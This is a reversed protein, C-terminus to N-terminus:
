EEVIRRYLELDRGLLRDMQKADYSEADIAGSKETRNKWVSKCDGGLKRSLVNAFDEMNELLGYHFYHEKLFEYVDPVQTDGTVYGTFPDAFRGGFSDLYAVYDRFQGKGAVKLREALHLRGWVPRQFYSQRCYRYESYIRSIPERMMTIYKLDWAPLVPTGYKFHGSIIDGPKADRNIIEWAKAPDSTNFLLRLRKRTRRVRRFDEFFGVGLDALPPNPPMAYIKAEPLASTAMEVLSQSGSKRIRVLVYLENKDSM